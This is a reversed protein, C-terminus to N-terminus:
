KEAASSFHMNLRSRENSNIGIETKKNNLNLEFVADYIDLTVVCNIWFMIWDGADLM